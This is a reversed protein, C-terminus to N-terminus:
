SQFESYVLLNYQRIRALTNDIALRNKPCWDEIDM